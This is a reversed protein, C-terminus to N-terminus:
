AAAVQEGVARKVKSGGATRAVERGAEAHPAADLRAEVPDVGPRASDICTRLLM